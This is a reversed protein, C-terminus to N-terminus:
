GRGLLSNSFFTKKWVVNVLMSQASACKRTVKDGPKRQRDASSDVDVIVALFICTSFDSLDTTRQRFICNNNKLFVDKFVEKM